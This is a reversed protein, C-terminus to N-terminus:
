PFTIAKDCRSAVYYYIGVVILRSAWDIHSNMM